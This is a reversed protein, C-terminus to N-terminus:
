SNNKNKNVERYITARSLGTISTIEKVSLSGSNFLKIAQDVKKKDVVPRGFKVGKTKAHEIGLMQRELLREREFEAISGMIQLVLNGAPSSLDINERLSVFNINIEKLYQIFELVTLLRRSLRSLETV